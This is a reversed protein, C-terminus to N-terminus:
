LTSGQFVPEAPGILRIDEFSTGNREFAVELEGGKALVEYIGKNGDMYAAWLAAATVGSGCSLTEAEVGREFTRIRVRGEEDREVLNVNTGEQRYEPRDMFGAAISAIGKADINEMPLIVHPSGTDVFYHDSKEEVKEVDGISVEVRGDEYLKGEHVGDIARFRIKREPDEAGGLEFFAKVACRSGNGCFSMSADPNFFRMEMDLEEDPLLLILGDAGIGFHRDCLWRVEDNSPLRGEENRHDLLV